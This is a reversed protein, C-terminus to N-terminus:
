QRGSDQFIRAKALGPFDSFQRWSGTEDVWIGVIESPINKWGDQRYGKLPRMLGSEMVLPLGSDTIGIDSIRLDIPAILSSELAKRIQEWQVPTAYLDGVRRIHPLKEIRFGKEVVSDYVQLIAPHFHRKQEDSDHSIRYINGDEGELLLAFDGIKFLTYKPSNKQSAKSNMGKIAGSIAERAGNKKTIHYLVHDHISMIPLDSALFPSEAPDFKRAYISPLLLIDEINFYEGRSDEINGM